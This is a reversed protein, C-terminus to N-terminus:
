SQTTTHAAKEPRFKRLHEVERRIQEGAAEIGDAIGIWVIGQIDSPLENPGKYLVIVRGSQRGLQAFFFGLEFIVNQRSRRPNDKTLTPDDPTLLVFVCEILGAFDEIKEILTRGSNPQERLIIPEPWGLTNQVYNKLQLLAIEDHGHVIFSRPGSERDLLELGQLTARIAQQGDSKLVVPIGQSRAWSEHESGWVDGTILVLKLNPKERRLRRALAVGTLFGGRCEETSIGSATPDNPLMVDIIAADYSDAKTRLAEEASSARLSEIGSDGLLEVIRSAYFRDDEVILVAM